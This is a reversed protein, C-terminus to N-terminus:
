DRLSHHDIALVFLAEPTLKYIISYPYKPLVLKRTGVKLWPKGLMPFDLLGDVSDTILKSVRQAAAPNDQSIHASIKLM